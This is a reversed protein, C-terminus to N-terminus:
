LINIIRNRWSQCTAHTTYQCSLEFISFTGESDEPRSVQVFLHAFVLYLM